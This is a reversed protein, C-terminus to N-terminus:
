MCRTRFILSLSRRRADWSCSSHFCVSRSVTSARGGARGWKSTSGRCSSSSNSERRTSEGKVRSSVDSNTTQSCSSTLMLFRQAYPFPFTLTSRLLLSAFLRRLCLSVPCERAHYVIHHDLEIKPGWKFVEGFAGEAEKAREERKGEEGGEKGEELEVSNEDPYALYRLCVAELFRTLCVDDAWGKGWEKPTMDLLKSM